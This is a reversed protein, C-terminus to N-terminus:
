WKDGEREEEPAGPYAPVYSPELEEEEVEEIPEPVKMPEPEIEWERIKKGIESM